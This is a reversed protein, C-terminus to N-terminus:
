FGGAIVIGADRLARIADFTQIIVRSPCQVSCILGLCKHGLNLRDGIGHMKVDGLKIKWVPASATRKHQHKM